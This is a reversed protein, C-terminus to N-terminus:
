EAPVDFDHLKFSRRWEDAIEMEGVSLWPYSRGTSLAHSCQPHFIAPLKKSLRALAQSTREAKEDLWKSMDPGTSSAM